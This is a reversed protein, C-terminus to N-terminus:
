LKRYMRFMERGIFSSDLLRAIRVRFKDLPRFEQGPIMEEAYAQCKEIFDAVKLTREKTSTKLIRHSLSECFYLLMDKGYRKVAQQILPDDKMLQKLFEMYFGFAQQYMMGNTTKSVNIHIRYSFSQEFSTAKYGRSILKVWLEYDAFILNPYNTPMGGLLDFDRSRMVYGTGTSDITRNMQCSLFEHAQQTECMPLCPRVLKGESDIYRFHTHYLSATPHKRMLLDIQELYHDHLIDDHGILTM